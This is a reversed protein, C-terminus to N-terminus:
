EVSLQEEILAGTTSYVRRLGRPRSQYEVIESQVGYGGWVGNPEGATPYSTRLEFCCEETWITVGLNFALSRVMGNQYKEVAIPVGWDGLTSRQKSQCEDTENWM